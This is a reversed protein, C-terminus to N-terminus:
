TSRSPRKRCSSLWSIWWWGDRRASGTSPISSHPQIPLTPDLGLAKANAKGFANLIAANKRNRQENAEQVAADDSKVVDYQLGRCRAVPKHLLDPGCWRLAEESYSKVNEPIIGRLRFAKILEGRYDHPDSPVLDSDATIIARLFEGFQIDVPPCYDLARICVNLFDGAIKAAERALRDSLDPHLDGTARLMGCARAVRLLDQTRKIYITFFTDFVASVLIAGRQHPEFVAEINRSNPPTGIASRLAARAGISQGFQRALGVLPNDESLEPIIAAQEGSKPVLSGLDKRYILGGTRNITDLLADKYSFHQFLAVIDAFAEHFAAADPGTAETLFERQGDVLAHTTEHAVIDHSLCTFITQGPLAEGPDERSAAFYGFLLARLKPDYFANAQQFAHPFIRLRKHFPDSKRSGPRTRWRIPRGLAFEFRRLTESAVAYVMQQHFRPDSESPELGSGILVSPHDLNVPEYFLGNSADYDIVALQRGVPGPELREYPVAVVMYNNLKRGVSPDFAYVRLPRTSPTPYPENQPM